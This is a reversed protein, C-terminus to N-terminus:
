RENAENAKILAADYIPNPESPDAMSFKLAICFTQFRRRATEFYLYILHGKAKRHGACFAFTSEFSETSFM